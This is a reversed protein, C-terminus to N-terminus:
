LQKGHDKNKKGKLFDIVFEGLINEWCKFSDWLRHPSFLIKIKAQWLIWRELSENSNWGIPIRWRARSLSLSLSIVALHDLFPDIPQDASSRNLQDIICKGVLRFSRSRPRTQTVYEAYSPALRSWAAPLGTNNASGSLCKSRTATM